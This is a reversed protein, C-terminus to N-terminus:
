QRKGCKSCYTKKYSWAEIEAECCDSLDNLTLM